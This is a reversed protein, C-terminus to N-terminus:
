FEVICEDDSTCGSDFDLPAENPDPATCMSTLIVENELDVIEMNPKVYKEM